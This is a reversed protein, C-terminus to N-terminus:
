KLVASAARCTLYPYSIRIIMAFIVTLTILQKSQYRFSRSIGRLIQYFNPILFCVTKYAYIGNYSTALM